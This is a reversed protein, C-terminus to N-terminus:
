GVYNQTVTVHAHHNDISLQAFTVTKKDAVEGKKRVVGEDANQGKTVHVQGSKAVSSRALDDLQDSFSRLKLRAEEAKGIYLLCNKEPGEDQRQEEKSTIADRAFSM